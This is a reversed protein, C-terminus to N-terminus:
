ESPLHLIERGQDLWWQVAESHPYPQRYVIRQVRTGMLLKICSNCPFATVYATHARDPDRLQLIANQEAHIAECKDLGQGSPYGAGPCPNDICHPRGSPVGNYGVSLPRGKEDVIVCGVKRRPCTSLLAYTEAVRLGIQDRSMRSRPPSNGPGPDVPSCCSCAKPLELPPSKLDFAGSGRELCLPDRCDCEAMTQGMHLRRQTM